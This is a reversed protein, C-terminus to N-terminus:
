VIPSECLKTVNGTGAHWIFIAKGLGVGIENKSSWDLLDIYFDDQLGPADLVKFPCKAIKRKEDKKTDDTTACSSGKLNFPSQPMM